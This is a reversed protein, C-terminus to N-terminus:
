RKPRARKKAALRVGVGGGNADIFAVGARELAARMAAISDESVVRRSREFDVVTSIGIGASTALSGQTMDVLARGARSQEPTLIM